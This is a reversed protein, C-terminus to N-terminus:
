GKACTPPLNSFRLAPEKGIMQTILSIILLSNKEELPVEQWGAEFLLPIEALVLSTAVDQRRINGGEAKQVRRTFNSRYRSSIEFRIHLM